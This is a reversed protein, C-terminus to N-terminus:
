RAGSPMLRRYGELVGRMYMRLLWFSGWAILGSLLGILMTVPISWEPALQWHDGGITIWHAGFTRLVGMVPSLIAALGFAFTFSGLVPVVILSSFGTTLVFGMVVLMRLAGRASTMSPHQLYYDGLYAKALVAPEGLRALVVSLPQGASLSENIHSEIERVAEERETAPLPALRRRLEGLYRRSSEHDM